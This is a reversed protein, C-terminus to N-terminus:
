SMKYYSDIRRNIDNFSAENHIENNILSFGTNLVYIFREKNYPTISKLIADQITKSKAKLCIYQYMPDIKSTNGKPHAKDKHQGATLAIMNEIYSAIESYDSKPFIHHIESTKGNLDDKVESYPHNTKVWQMAKKMQYKNYDNSTDKSLEEHERRTINKLKGSNIDRFNQRNYILEDYTIIGKSVRGRKTGKYNYKFALPNLVKTFIRNAELRGDSGRNGINTYKVLFKYFDEKLEDFFQKDQREFFQKFSFIIGSDSLFKELYAVIFQYAYYDKLSIYTLIEKNIVSYYTKNGIRIKKTVGAYSLMNLPQTIFKDYENNAKKNEPSPKKFILECYKCFHKTEEIDSRTFKDKEVDLAVSAVFAVVDPTCKQDIFRKNNSIRKRIDLNQNSIFSEINNINM